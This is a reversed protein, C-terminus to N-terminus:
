FLTNLILKNLFYFCIIIFVLYMKSYIINIFIFNRYISEKKLWWLEKGLIIVIKMFM